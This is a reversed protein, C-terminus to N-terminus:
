SDSVTSERKKLRIANELEKIDEDGYKFIFILMLIVVSCSVYMDAVNFIPFNIIKIYIFDRVSGLFARDIMNGIGGAAIFVLLLRLISYKKELPLRILIYIIGAVVAISVLIFLLQHGSLLGWAAGTNGGPLYYLELVGPIIEFAPRDMLHAAAAEKTLQDILVLAAIALIDICIRIRKNM